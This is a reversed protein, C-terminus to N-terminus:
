SPENEPVAACPRRVLIYTAVGILGMPLFVGVVTALGPWSATWQAPYVSVGPGETPVTLVPPRGAVNDAALALMPLLGAFLLCALAATNKLLGGNM